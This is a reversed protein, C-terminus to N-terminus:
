SEESQLYPDGWREIVAARVDDIPAGQDLLSLAQDAEGLCVGCGSAHAEWGSGDPRQFCDLLHRHDLMEACGCFCPLEAFDGPHDIAGRYMVAISEPVESPDIVGGPAVAFMEDASPATTTDRESRLGDRIGLGIVTLLMVALVASFGAVARVLRRTPDSRGTDTENM